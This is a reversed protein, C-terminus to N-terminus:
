SSYRKENENNKNIILANISVFTCIFKRVAVKERFNEHKLHNKPSETLFKDHFAPLPNHLVSQKRIKASCFAPAAIECRGLLPGM